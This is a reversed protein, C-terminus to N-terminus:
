LKKFTNNKITTADYVIFVHGEALIRITEDKKNYLPNVFISSGKQDGDMLRLALRKMIELYDFKQTSPLWGQHGCYIDTFHGKKMVKELRCVSNYYVNIPSTPVCQLWVQGSGVADGSFVIKNKEDLVVVEGPTHAPTELIKLVEGGGLNFKQGDKLPRIIGDYHYKFKSFLITDKLNLWISSFYKACGIHDPHGHTIIVDLPKKTILQVIKNLDDCVTGSDILVSRNAGEVIYMSCHDFTELEWVNPRIKFIRVQDNRYIDNDAHTMFSYFQAKTIQACILLAVLLVGKQIIYKIKMISVKIAM